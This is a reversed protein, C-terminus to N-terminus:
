SKARRIAFHTLNRSRNCIREKSHLETDGFLHDRVQRWICGLPLPPSVCAGIEEKAEGGRVANKM